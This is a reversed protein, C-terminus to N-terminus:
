RTGQGINVCNDSGDHYFLSHKPRKHYFSSALRPCYAVTRSHLYRYGHHGCEIAVSRVKRGPHVVEAFPDVDCALIKM